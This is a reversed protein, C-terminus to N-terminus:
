YGTETNTNLRRHTILKDYRLYAIDGRQRAEKLAPILEKRKLRVAESYDENIFINTGKLLKAKELVALKDKNRLFKVVISRPKDGQGHPKGSRHAREIEMQKHDLKLKESIIKRIKEESTAWKEHESEAIGEFVLNNRRSHNELYDAKGNMNNQNLNVTKIDNHLEKCNKSLNTSLSKLEDVDKQTYSLSSKLDCVEKSVNDLRKNFSDMLLQVFGKFSSEQQQLLDKYFLKQQELLDHVQASTIIDEDSRLKPPM